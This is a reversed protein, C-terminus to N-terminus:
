KEEKKTLIAFLNKGELIENKEVFAIDKLQTVFLNLTQKGQNIYNLERGKFRVTVKVKNGDELLRQANKIKFEMDHSSINPTLRIEKLEVEKQKKKIEKAKKAQNFKYKGYDMLKCIPPNSAVLVLDLKKNNAIDLAQKTTFNGLKKGSEDILQINKEKIQENVLFKQNIYFM